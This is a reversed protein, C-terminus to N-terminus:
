LFKTPDQKRLMAGIKTAIEEPSGSAVIKEQDDLMAWRGLNGKILHYNCQTRLNLGAIMGALKKEENTM